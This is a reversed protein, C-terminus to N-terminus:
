LQMSCREQSTLAPRPVPHKGETETLARDMLWFKKTSATGYYDSYSPHLGQSPQEAGDLLYITSTAQALTETTGSWEGVKVEYKKVGTTAKTLPLTTYSFLPTTGGSAINDLQV